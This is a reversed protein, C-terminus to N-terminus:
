AKQNKQSDLALRTSSADYIIKLEVITGRQDFDFIDVCDFFVHSGNGLTWEYLFNASARNKEPHYFLDILTIKSRSTDKFLDRYFDYAPRKGYLPSHVLAEEAFLEMIAQYDANELAKLYARIQAEM